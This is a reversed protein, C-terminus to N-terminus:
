RSKIHARFTHYHVNTADEQWPRLAATSAFYVAGEIRMRDPACENPTFPTMILRSGEQRHM